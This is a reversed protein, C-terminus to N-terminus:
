SSSNGESPSPSHHCHGSGQLLRRHASGHPWHWQALCFAPLHASPLSTLLQCEPGTDPSHGATGTKTRAWLGASRSGPQRCLGGHSTAPDPCTGPAPPPQLPLLAMTPLSWSPAMPITIPPAGGLLVSHVSGHATGQCCPQPVMHPATPRPCQLSLASFPAVFSSAPPLLLSLSWILFEYRLHLSPKLM